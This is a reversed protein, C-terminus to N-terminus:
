IMEWSETWHSLTIHPLYSLNTYSVIGVSERKITLWKLGKETKAIMIRKQIQTTQKNKITVAFTMTTKIRAAGCIVQPCYLHRSSSILMNFIYLLLSCEPKMGTILLQLIPKLIEWDWEPIYKIHHIFTWVENHGSGTYSYMESHASVYYRDYHLLKWVSKGSLCDSYKILANFM